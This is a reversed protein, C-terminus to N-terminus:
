MCIRVFVRSEEEKSSKRKCVFSWGDFRDVFVFIFIVQFFGGGWVEGYRVTGYGAMVMEGLVKVLCALVFSLVCCLLM